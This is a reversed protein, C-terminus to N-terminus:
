SPWITCPRSTARSPQAPTGCGHASPTAPRAWVASTFPRLGTSRSPWDRPRPAATGNFPRSCIGRGRGPRRRLAVGGGGPGRSRRAHRGAAAFGTRHDHAADDHAPSVRRTWSRPHTRRSPPRRDGRAPARDRGDPPFGGGHRQRHRRNQRVQAFCVGPGDRPQRDLADTTGHMTAQRPVLAAPLAAAQKCGCATREARNSGPSSAGGVHDHVRRRAPLRDRCVLHHWGDAAPEPTRPPAGATAARCRLGTPLADAPEQARPRKGRGSSAQRLKARM